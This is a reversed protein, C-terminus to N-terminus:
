GDSYNDPDSPFHNEFLLRVIVPGAARILVPLCFGDFDPGCGLGCKCIIGTGRNPPTRFQVADDSPELANWYTKYM